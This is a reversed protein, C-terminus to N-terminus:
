AVPADSMNERISRVRDRGGKPFDQLRNLAKSNIRTMWGAALQSATIPVTELFARQQLESMLDQQIASGLISFMLEQHKELGLLYPEQCILDAARERIWAAKIDGPQQLIAAWLDTFDAGHAGTLLLSAIAQSDVSNDLLGAILAHMQQNTKSRLALLDYGLDVKKQIPQGELLVKWASFLQQRQASDDVNIGDILNALQKSNVDSSAAVLLDLAHIKSFPWLQVGFEVLRVRAQQQQQADVIKAVLQVVSQILQKDSTPQSTIRPGSRDLIITATNPNIQDFWQNEFSKLLEDMVDPRQDFSTAIQVLLTNAEDPAGPALLAIVKLLLLVPEPHNQRNYLRQVYTTQIHTLVTAALESLHQRVGEPGVNVLLAEMKDLEAPPNATLATMLVSSARKVVETGFSDFHRGIFGFAEPIILVRKEDIMWTLVANSLEQHRNKLSYDALRMFAEASATQTPWRELAVMVTKRSVKGEGEGEFRDEAELQNLFAARLRRETSSTKSVAETVHEGLAQVLRRREPAELLRQMHQWTAFATSTIASDDGALLMRLQDIVVQRHEGGLELETQWIDELEQLIAPGDEEADLQGKLLAQVIHRSYARGPTGRFFSPKMLYWSRLTLVDFSDESNGLNLRTLWDELLTRTVDSTNAGMLLPVLREIGEQVREPTLPKGTEPNLFGVPVGKQALLETAAVGLLERQHTNTALGAVEVTALPGVHWRLDKQGSLGSALPNSILHVSAPDTPLKDLFTRSTLTEYARRRNIAGMTHHSVREEILQRIRELDGQTLRGDGQVGLAALFGARSSLAKELDRISRSSRREDIDQSLLLLPELDEPLHLGANRWSVSDLLPIYKEDVEIPMGVTSSASANASTESEKKADSSKKFYTQLIRRDKPPLQGFRVAASDSDQDVLVNIFNKLLQPTQQLDQYFSPHLVRLSSLVALVEAHQTVVGPTLAGIRHEKNIAERRVAIWWSQAFANIVQLAARPNTVDYQILREVVYQPEVGFAELSKKLDLLGGTKETVELKDRIFARMDQKPFPPIELRYQFVRDLFRRADQANLVVAPLDSAKHRRKELAEAIRQEDCSIVFVIGSFDNARQTVKIDMFNRVADLGSVMEDASLRDLDDVFVVLRRSQQHLYNQILTELSSEITEELSKASRKESMTRYPPLM